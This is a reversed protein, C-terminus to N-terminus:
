RAGKIGWRGCACPRTARTASEGSDAWRNDRWRQSWVPPQSIGAWMMIPRIIIIKNNNLRSIMKLVEPSNQDSPGNGPKVNSGLYLHQLNAGSFTFFGTQKKRERKKLVNKENGHSQLNMELVDSPQEAPPIHTLKSNFSRELAIKKKLENGSFSIAEWSKTLTLRFYTSFLESSFNSWITKLRNKAEM